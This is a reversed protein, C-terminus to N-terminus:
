RSKFDLIFVGSWKFKPIKMRNPHLGSAVQEQIVSVKQNDFNLADM